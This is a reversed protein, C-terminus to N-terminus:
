FSILRVENHWGVLTLPLRKYKQKKCWQESSCCGHVYNFSGLCFNAKAKPWCKTSKNGCNPPGCFCNASFSLYQLHQKRRVRACVHTQTHAQWVQHSIRCIFFIYVSCKTAHRLATLKHAGAFNITISKACIYYYQANESCEFETTASSIIVRGKM